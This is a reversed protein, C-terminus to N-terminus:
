AGSLWMVEVNRGAERGLRRSSPISNLYGYVVLKLLTASHYGPRGTRAAVARGFGLAPLDLVDVIPGVARVLDDKGIRSCRRRAANCETSSVPWPSGERRRLLM